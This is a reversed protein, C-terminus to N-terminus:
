SRRSPCAWKAHQGGCHTCTHLYPCHNGRFCHGKDNFIYCPEQQDGLPNAPPDRTPLRSPEPKNLGTPQRSSTQRCQLCATYLHALSGRAYCALPPHPLHLRRLATPQRGYRWAATQFSKSKLTLFHQYQFLRPALHPYFSCLVAAYM